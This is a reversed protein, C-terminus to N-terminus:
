ETTLRILAHSEDGDLWGSVGLARLPEVNEIVEPDDGAFSKVLSDLWNDADFDVFFVSAAREADPVVDGLTESDGLEGDDVLRGLYDEDAGIAVHDGDSVSVLLEGAEGLQARIKELVEEIAEPDGKVKIGVPVQAPDESELADADISSDVAIALSEGTLTELDEPIALGTAQELDAIADDVSMGSEQEIVPAMQDILAQVWGDGFGLGFAAATTAPLTALVDDGRESVFSGYAPDEAVGGAFEIEVAGDDFRVSGAGGPFDKLADSVQPPLEESDPEGGDPTDEAAPVDARAEQLMKLQEELFAREPADAPLEALEAELEAILADLQEAQGEAGTDEGEGLGGEALGLLEEGAFDILAQGAEPAAYLTVVGPDGAAETWRGFEEDDALTRDEASAAVDRAIKESEALVVWDGLFAYGTAADGTAGSAEACRELSELGEAAKEQDTVAVVFVPAPKEEGQGVVAFAAREGLWPEIDDAYDVDTCQGDEQIEEFIRRRIDDDTELGVEKEFAPFKRLFEIAEIKQQGTPDLDVSVYALTDAPLAQAPQPGQNFWAAYAWVGGGVVAVAALGGVAAAVKRGPGRGDQGVPLGTGSDLYDPQDGPHNTSSM